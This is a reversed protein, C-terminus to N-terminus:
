RTECETKLLSEFHWSDRCMDEIDFKAKWGFLKLALTPDCWNAAIDGARRERIVYPLEKGCAKSFAAVVELVSTGTGTGLNFIEVGTKGDCKVTCRGEIECVDDHFIFEIGCKTLNL